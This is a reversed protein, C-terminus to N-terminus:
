PLAGDVSADLSSEPEPDVVEEAAETDEAEEIKEASSDGVGDGPVALAPIELTQQVKRELGAINLTEALALQYAEESLAGTQRMLRLIHDTRKETRRLNRYPNYAIRPGPLMAALFASERATLEAPPKGFYFRAGHGVGHVLPGLEVLNLYLELIREKSLEQELARTIALERFKRVFSKERSLFLNKALQQTITSAGRALRQHEWNYRIAEKLAPVDVGQHQYFNGDEAVVVAQKLSRPLRGVPTWYRNKPGVAFPHTKGQWDRVQITVTTSRERLPKVSPLTAFFIIAAVAAAAALIGLSFLLLVLRSRPRTTKKRPM